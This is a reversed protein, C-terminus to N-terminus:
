ETNLGSQQQVQLLAPTGRCGCACGCPVCMRRCTCFRPLSLQYRHGSPGSAGQRAAQGRRPQQLEHSDHRALELVRDGLARSLLRRPLRRRGCWCVRAASHAVRARVLETLASAASPTPLM